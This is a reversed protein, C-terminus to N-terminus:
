YNPSRTCYGGSLIEYIGGGDHGMLLERYPEEDYIFTKDDDVFLGFGV